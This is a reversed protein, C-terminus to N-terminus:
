KKGKKRRVYADYDGQFGDPVDRQEIDGPNYEGTTSGVRGGCNPCRYNRIVVATKWIAFDKLM